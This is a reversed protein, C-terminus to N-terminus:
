GNPILCGGVNQSITGITAYGSKGFAHIVVKYSGEPLTTQVFVFSFTDTKAWPDGFTRHNIYEVTGMVPESEAIGVLFDLYPSSLMLSFMLCSEESINLMASVLITPSPQDEVSFESMMYYGPFVLICHDPLFIM